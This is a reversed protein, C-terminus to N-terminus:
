RNTASLRGIKPLPLVTCAGSIVACSHSNHATAAVQAPEAIPNCYLQRRQREIVALSFIRTADSSLLPPLIQRTSAYTLAFRPLCLSLPQDSCASAMM